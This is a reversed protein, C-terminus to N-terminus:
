GVTRALILPLDKTLDELITVRKGPMRYKSMNIAQRLIDNVDMPEPATPETQAFDLVEEVLNNVRDVEKIINDAYKRKPDTEALDERILEM